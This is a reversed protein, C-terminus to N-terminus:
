LVNKDPCEKWSWHLVKLAVKSRAVWEFLRTFTFALNSQKQLKINKENINTGPKVKMIQVVMM